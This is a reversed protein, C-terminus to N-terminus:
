TVAVADILANDKLNYHRELTRNIYEARLHAMKNANQKQWRMGQLKIRRQVVYKNASEIAGSGICIGQSKYKEYRMKDKNKMFYRIKEDVLEKKEKLTQQDRLQMLIQEVTEINGQKLHGKCEEYFKNSASETKFLEEKLDGIKEVAHYWDVIQVIGSPYEARPFLEEMSNWIWGAGDAICVIRVEDDGCYRELNYKIQRKIETVDEMTSYYFKNKLIQTEEDLKDIEFLMFTKCEKWGEDTNIHCGDTEIYVTRSSNLNLNIKVPLVKGKKDLLIHGIEKQHYQNIHDGMAETSCEIQKRSVRIGRIKNLTDSAEEFPAVTGLIDSWYKILPCHKKDEIDLKEDLFSKIGGSHYETYIARSLKVRGFATLLGRGRQKSICSYETEDDVIVKSGKYGNGYLIPILEELLCAGVDNIKKCIELELEIFSRHNVNFSLLSKLQEKVIVNIREVIRDIESHSKQM